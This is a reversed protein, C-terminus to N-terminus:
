GAILEDDKAIDSASLGQIAIGVKQDLTEGSGLVVAGSLSSAVGRMSTVALVTGKKGTRRVTITEGVKPSAGYLLLGVAQTVGKVAVVSVCKICYRSQVSPQKITRAPSDPVGSSAKIANVQQKQALALCKKTKSIWEALEYSEIEALDVLEPQMTAYLEAKSREEQIQHEIRRLAENIEAGSRHADVNILAEVAAMVIPRYTDKLFGKIVAISTADGKASLAKINACKDYFGEKKIDHLQVDSEMMKKLFHVNLLDVIATHKFEKAMDSPTKGDKSKVVASAGKDLLYKVLSLHGHLSAVLLPTTGHNKDKAEKDAGKAILFEVTSLHGKYSAMHLPTYGNENRAEKDAGMVILYKVLDIQGNMAANLLKNNLMETIGSVRKLWDFM